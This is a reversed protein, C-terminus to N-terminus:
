LTKEKETNNKAIDMSEKAKDVGKEVLVGLESSLRTLVRRADPNGLAFGLAFIVIDSAKM